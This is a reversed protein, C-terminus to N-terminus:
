GGGQPAASELWCLFCSVAAGDRRHANRTGAIEVPNKCAKPLACPDEGRVPESGAATLRDFVWAPASAPDALVRARAAGLRDLTPGLADPAHIAVGNGLHRELGPALKLKEIFLEVTGDKAVIAFSL